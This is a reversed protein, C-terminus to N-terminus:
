NSTVFLWQFPWRVMWFLDCLIALYRTITVATVRKLHSFTFSEFTSVTVELSAPSDGPIYPHKRFYHYGLDDMNISNEMIFWGNQPVVIKPFVWIFKNEVQWGTATKMALGVEFLVLDWGHFALAIGCVKSFHNWVHRRTGRRPAMPEHEKPSKGTCNQTEALTRPFRLPHVWCRGVATPPQRLNNPHSDKVGLETLRNFLWSSPLNIGSFYTLLLM